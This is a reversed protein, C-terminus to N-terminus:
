NDLAVFLVYSKQSIEAQALDFSLEILHLVLFFRFDSPVDHPSSLKSNCLTSSM